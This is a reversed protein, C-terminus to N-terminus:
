RQKVSIPGATNEGSPKKAQAPAAGSGGKNIVNPKVSKSQIDKKDTMQINTPADKPEPAQEGSVGATVIQNIGTLFAQLAKKEADKLDNYYKEMQAM